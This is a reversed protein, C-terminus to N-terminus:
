QSIADIFRPGASASITATALAARHTGIIPPYHRLAQRAASIRYRGLSLRRSPALAPMAIAFNHSSAFSLFLAFLGDFYAATFRAEPQFYRLTIEALILGAPPLVDPAFDILNQLGLRVEFRRFV